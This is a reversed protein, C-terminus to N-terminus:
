RISWSAKKLKFWDPLFICRDPQASPDIPETPRPTFPDRAYRWVAAPSQNTLLNLPAGQVARCKRITVVPQQMQQVKSLASSTEISKEVSARRDAVGVQWRV